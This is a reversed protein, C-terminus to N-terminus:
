IHVTTTAHSHKSYACLYTLTTQAYTAKELLIKLVPPPGFLKREAPLWTQTKLPYFCRTPTNLYISVGVGLVSCLAWQRVGIECPEDVTHM